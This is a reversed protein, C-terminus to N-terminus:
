LRGEFQRCRKEVAHNRLTGYDAGVEVCIDWCMESFLFAVAMAEDIGSCNEEMGAADRAAQNVIAAMLLRTGANRKEDAHVQELYARM